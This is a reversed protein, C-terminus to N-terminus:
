QLAEQQDSNSEKISDQEEELMKEALIEQIISAVSRFGADAKHQLWMGMAPKPQFQVYKIASM